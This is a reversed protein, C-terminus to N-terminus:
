AGPTVGYYYYNVGGVMKTDLLSLHDIGPNVFEIQGGHTPGNDGKIGDTDGPLDLVMNKGFTIVAGMDTGNHVKTTTVIRDDAGFNSITDGGLNLGLATDYLYTKAGTGANFADNGVTGETMGALRTSADAYAHGTGNGKTGLYRLADINQGTSNSITIQAEGANKNGAGTRDIDLQGNPGFSIIGDNNGDFIKQFNIISDNKDFNQITDDGTIGNGFVFAVAQKGTADYDLTDYTDNTNNFAIDFGTATTILSDNTGLAM